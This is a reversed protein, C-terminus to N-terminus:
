KNASWGDSAEQAVDNQFYWKWPNAILIFGHGADGFREQMQRRMTGSILHARHGLRRLPPHAHRRRGGEEAHTRAMRLVARASGDPDEIAVTGNTKALVEPDLAEQQHSEPLANTVM